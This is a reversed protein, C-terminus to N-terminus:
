SNPFELTPPTFNATYRAIGKTVRFEDMQGNIQGITPMFGLRPYNASTLYNLTDTYTAGCQNGNVFLKTQTGSRALAIHAWTNATLPAGTGSISTNPTQDRTVSVTAASRYIGITVGSGSFFCLGNLGAAVSVPRYWFEVTFDSTAMAFDASGDLSLYDGTGDFSACASGFKPSSTSLQANGVATITHNNKSDTITTSANSGDFHILCVVNSIYTDIQGGINKLSYKRDKFHSIM